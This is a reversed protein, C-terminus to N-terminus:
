CYSLGHCTDEETEALSDAFVDPLTDDSVHAIVVPCLWMTWDSMRFPVRIFLSASRVAANVRVAISSMLNITPLHIANEL